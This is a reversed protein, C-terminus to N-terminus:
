HRCCCMCCAVLKHCGAFFKEGLYFIFPILASGITLVENTTLTKGIKKIDFKHRGYIRYHISRFTGNLVMFWIYPHYTFLHLEKIDCGILKSLEIMREDHLILSKITDHHRPFMKKYFQKQYEIDSKMADVSPLQKYNSILEGYYRASLECITILSGISPRNLGNFCFSHGHEPLFMHKFLNRPNLSFSTNTTGVEVELNVDAQKDNNKSEDDGEKIEDNTHDIHNIHNINSNFSLLQQLFTYNNLKYGTCCVIADINKFVYGNKFEVNLTNHINGNNDISLHNLDNVRINAITSQIYKLKHFLIGYIFKISKTAFVKYVNLPRLHIYNHVGIWETVFRYDTSIKSFLINDIGDLMFGLYRLWEPGHLAPYFATKTVFLDAAKGGYYRPYVTGPGNRSMLVSNKAVKSINYSIDSGSEGCGIILVNKDKFEKSSKYQSSHLIKCSHNSRNINEIEKPMNAQDTSAGGTCIVFHDFYDSQLLNSNMENINNNNNRYDIKFTGGAAHDINVIEHELKINQTLNFTNIFRNLYKIYENFSPIFGIKNIDIKKRSKCCWKGSRKYIKNKNEILDSEDFELMSFSCHLNSNTLSGNEYNLSSFSGGIKNSKDFITVNHGYDKLIKGTIIGCPGCGIIAVKKCKHEIIEIGDAQKTTDTNQIGPREHDRLDQELNRINTTNQDPNNKRHCICNTCPLFIRFFINCIIWIPLLIIFTILSLCLMFAFWTPLNFRNLFHLFRSLVDKVPLVEIEAAEYTDCCDPCMIFHYLGYLFCGGFWICICVNIWGFDVLVNYLEVLIYDFNM